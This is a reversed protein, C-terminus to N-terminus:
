TGNRIFPWPATARRMTWSFPTSTRTHMGGYAPGIKFGAVMNQQPLVFPPMNAPTTSAAWSSRGTRIVEEEFAVVVEHGIRPWFFAGWGKGAWVQAVRVWCSSNEDHKGRRDWHFQVKVRGYKDCHIEQQAPGVVVATQLGPIVPPRTTRAPRFIVKAPICTFTNAYSAAEGSAEYSPDTASHWISTIVFADNGSEGSHNTLRFKGGVAFTCCGGGAAVMDLNTEEEEM